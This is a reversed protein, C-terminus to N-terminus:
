RTSRRMTLVSGSPTPTSQPRQASENIKIGIPKKTVVKKVKAPPTQTSAAKRKGASGMSPEAGSRGSTASTSDAGPAQAFLPIAPILSESAGEFDCV